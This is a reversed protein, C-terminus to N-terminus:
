DGGVRWAQRYYLESMRSFSMIDMLIVGALNDGENLEKLASSKSKSLGSKGSGYEITQRRRNSLPSTRARDALHEAPIKAQDLVDGPIRDEYSSVHLLPERRM